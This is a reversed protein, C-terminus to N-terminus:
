DVSTVLGVAPALEITVKVSLLAKVVVMTAAPRTEGFVGGHARGVAYSDAADVIYMRTRVVHALTVGADHLAIDLGCRQAPTMPKSSGGCSSLTIALM